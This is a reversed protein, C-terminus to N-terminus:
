QTVVNTWRCHDFGRLYLSIIHDQVTVMGILFQFQCIVKNVSRLSRCMGSEVAEIPCIHAHERCKCEDNVAKNNVFADNSQTLMWDTSTGLM